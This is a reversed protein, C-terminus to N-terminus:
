TSFDCGGLGGLRCGPEGPELLQTFLLFTLSNALPENVISTVRVFDRKVEDPALVLNQPLPSTRNRDVKGPRSVAKLTSALPRASIRSRADRHPDQESGPLGLPDYFCMERNSISPGPCGSSCSVIPRM